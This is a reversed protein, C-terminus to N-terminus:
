ARLREVFRKQRFDKEIDTCPKFLGNMAIYVDPAAQHFLALRLNDWADSKDGNALPWISGTFVVPCSLTKVIKMRLERATETMRDTGMTVIIRDYHAARDKVNCHLSERDKDDLSKSDKSCIAIHDLYVPSPSRAAIDSLAGIAKSDGSPTAHAPYEGEKESYPSSDITGGMTLVLVKM